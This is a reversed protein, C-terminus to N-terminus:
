VTIRVVEAAMSSSLIEVQIWWEWAWAASGSNVSSSLSSGSFVLGRWFQVAFGSESLGEFKLELGQLILTSNKSASSVRHM